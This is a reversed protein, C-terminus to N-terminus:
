NVEQIRCISKFNCYNCVKNDRDSLTTLNFKGSIIFSVYKEISETCIKILDNNANIYEEATINKRRSDINSIKAPGFKDDSFKLSYIDAEVPLFEKDLQAKIFHKAAYMYLPLQLSIGSLLDSASPTKGSLKYDVVKFQEKEDDIDIRDIKGRVNINKVAFNALPSEEGKGESHIKGFGKEFYAPIFGDVNNRETEIFKFLISNRRNGNIGLIKEKEFFTVPSHFNAKEIKDEAIKFILEYAYKFETDGCGQLTIGAAKLKTYFEFLINHLLTGMELAEIEETPEEIPKLKLVREAFYKYPCKAYTELQTISYQKERFNKLYEKGEDSLDNLLQGTFEYEGFPESLRRGDITLGKEIEDLDIGLGEYTKKYEPKELGTRGMLELLEEKSYVTNKYDNENKGRIEFINTFETLFNSEVLEKRDDHSPNTFYLGKEWLCLAQYFHYREEAHHKQENKLFSPSFFIEPTYRTPLDGDCLGAIFLYDFKLGRIESLTTIQVGYGQREKINYRSSNVATRINNLYFKLPFKEGKSYELKFLELLETVTEITVTMAKVNEEVKGGGTEILKLPFNLRYILNTFKELFEEFGMKKDFPEVLEHILEIDALAKNYEEGHLSLNAFEEDDYDSINSLSDEISNKWNNFGSIIKLEVSVRLLNAQNIGTNELFGGSLARLINKYYFDNELIELLNIIAIVPPSSNLAYRDTLNFPINYVSFIDRVSPSYKQILNFAVCIKNPPTNKDTILEKIEKAILEIEKTRGQATIKSISKEFDKIKEKKRGKFLNERIEAQFKNRVSKSIDNVSYFGRSKLKGYCRDLHAFLQKNDSSYDFSLFLKVGQLESTSNIIEIEPITFEDFGTIIITEAEPFFNRFRKEFVGRDIKNLQNYVDGLEKVGLKDCDAQYKEYIDAIDGAKLKESGSLGAAEKRLDTATIGNKKYESIVNKIRELTGSPIEDRYNSFYKLKARQFSQKLLVTAAADGLITGKIEPDDFLLKASFTGLTELNIKGTASGPSLTIIEKKLDRIKRNTPVIILLRNICNSKISQHIEFDVDFEKIKHKTLIM